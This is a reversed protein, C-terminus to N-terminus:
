FVGLLTKIKYYSTPKPNQELMSMLRNLLNVSETGYKKIFEQDGIEKFRDRAIKLEQDNLEDINRSLDIGEAVDPKIM